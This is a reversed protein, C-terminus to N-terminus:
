KQDDAEDREGDIDNNGILIIGQIHNPMVVWEDLEVTPVHEPIALWCREAIARIAQNEFLLERDRTSLTVFYAGARAYDYGQLRISRRHQRQEDFTM